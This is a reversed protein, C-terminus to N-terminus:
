KIEIEKRYVNDFFIAGKRKIEEIDVDQVVELFPKKYYRISEKDLLRKAAKSIVSESKALIDLPHRINLEEMLRNLMQDFLKFFGQTKMLEGPEGMTKAPFYSTQLSLINDLGEWAAAGYGLESLYGFVENVEKKDYLHTLSNFYKFKAQACHTAEHVLLNLFLKKLSNIDRKMKFAIARRLLSNIAYDRIHNITQERGVRRQIKLFYEKEKDAVHSVDIGMVFKKMKDIDGGKALRLITERTSKDFFHLGDDLEFAVSGRVIPILSLGRISGDIDKIVGITTGKHEELILGKKVLGSYVSNSIMVIKCCESIVSGKIESNPFSFKKGKVRITFRNREITKKPVKTTKQVIKPESTKPTKERISRGFYTLAITGVLAPILLFKALRMKSKKQGNCPKAKVKSKHM